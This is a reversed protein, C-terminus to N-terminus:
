ENLHKPQNAAAHASILLYALTEASRSASSPAAHAPISTEMAFVTTVRLAVRTMVRRVKATYTRPPEHAVHCFM